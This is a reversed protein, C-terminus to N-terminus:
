DSQRKHRLTAIGTCGTLVVLVAWYTLDKQAVPGYEVEFRPLWLDVTVFVLYLTSAVTWRLDRTVFAAVAALGFVGFELAVRSASLPITSEELLWGGEAWALPLAAALWWWSRPRVRRWAAVAVLGFIVMAYGLGVALPSSRYFLHGDTFATPEVPIMTLEAFQWGGAIAVAKVGTALTLPLAAWVWGRVVALTGAASLAVWFPIVGVYPLLTAFGAVAVATIALHVAEPWLRRRAQRLMRARVGGALLGAVEKLPPRTLEPSTSEMLVDLLEDGHDRRYGRPYALLLRRYRRELVPVATM